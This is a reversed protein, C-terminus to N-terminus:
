VIEGATIVPPENEKEVEVIGPGRPTIRVRDGPKLSQKGPPFIVEKSSRELRAVIAGGKGDRGTLRVNLVTDIETPLM